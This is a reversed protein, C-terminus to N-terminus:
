FNSGRYILPTSILVPATPTKTVAASNSASVILSQPLRLSFALSLSSAPASIDVTTASVVSRFLFYTLNAPRRDPDPITLPKVSVDSFGVSQLNSVLFSTNHISMATTEAEREASGTNLGFHSAVTSMLDSFSVSPNDSLNM